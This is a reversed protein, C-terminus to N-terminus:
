NRLLSVYMKICQDMQMVHYLSYVFSETIFGMMNDIDTTERLLGCARQSFEFSTHKKNIKSQFGVM